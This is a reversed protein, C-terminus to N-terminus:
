GLAINPCASPNCIGCAGDFRGRCIPSPTYTLPWRLETSQGLAGGPHQPASWGKLHSGRSVRRFHSSIRLDRTALTIRVSSFSRLFLMVLEAGASRDFPFLLVPAIGYRARVVSKDSAAITATGDEEAVRDHHCEFVVVGDGMGISPPEMDALETDAVLAPHFQM